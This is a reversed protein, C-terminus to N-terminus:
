MLAERLAAVDKAFHAAGVKEMTERSGYGYLVGIFSVGAEVAGVADFETDGIMVTREAAIGTQELARKILYAKNSNGYEGDPCSVIDFLDCLGFYNLVVYASPLPKSSAVGLKAGGAKLELLLERIGPYVANDFIGTSEYEKRYGSVADQIQEDSFNYFHKLSYSIPPGIFKKCASLSEEIGFRRLMNQVCKTIGPDSQNVTGDLDFLFLEYKLAMSIEKPTAAREPIGAKGCAFDERRM